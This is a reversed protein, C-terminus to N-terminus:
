EDDTGEAQQRARNEADDVIAQEEALMRRSESTDDWWQVGPPIPDHPARLTVWMRHLAWV